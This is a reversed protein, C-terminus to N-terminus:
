GDKRPVLGALAAFPSLDADRLPAVGPAAFVAEGLAAGPARPFPPLALALAEAAVAAIDIVPPLPEATDAEPVTLEALYRREVAEDIRAPVPALTVGCAQVAEASLRATLRFDAGGEPRIEGQFRLGDLALLGLSAALAARDAAGATWDFATPRRHSLAATRFAPAAPM